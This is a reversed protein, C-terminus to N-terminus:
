VKAEAAQWLVFDSAPKPVYLRQFRLVFPPWGRWRRLLAGQLVARLAAVM